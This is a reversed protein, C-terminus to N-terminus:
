VHRRLASTDLGVVKFHNTAPMMWGNSERGKQMMVGARVCVDGGDAHRRKEGQRREGQRRDM